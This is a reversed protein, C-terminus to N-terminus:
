NIAGSPVKIKETIQVVFDEYDGNVSKSSHFSLDATLLKAVFFEANFPKKPM